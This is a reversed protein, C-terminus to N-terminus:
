NRRAYYVDYDVWARGGAPKVVVRHDGAGLGTFVRSFGFRLSGSRAHDIRGVLDGDVYVKSRGGGSARGFWIELRDGATPMVLASAPRAATCYRRGGDTRRVTWDGKKRVSDSECQDVVGVAVRVTDTDTRGDEDTVTLRATYTGPRAYAARVTRGTADRASGGNGFSWSYRLDSSSTEDDSSGQGSFTVQRGTRTRTPTASARATPAAGSATVTVQVTDTDDLGQPDTVTLEADYTGPETYTHKPAAASSDKTGDGDFDWSYDLDGPDEDDTSGTADFQVSQGTTAATPTAKADATPATNAPPAPLDGYGYDFAGCGAGMDFTVDGTLDGDSTSPGVGTGSLSTVDFTLCGFRFRWPNTVSPYRSDVESNSPDTYNDTHGEGSDTFRSDGSAATWAADDLDPQDSGPEPQSDLPTQAPPNDTGVNGYGHNEDTYAVYLGPQFGIPDRDNEGKGQEDFGSRDRLELYYAHDLPALSSADVYRWGQTCQKAVAARDQCGGNFVRFDEPGGEGEFDTALLVRKSDDPLTATVELDDIFWGPRALGPDTSYSFRLAGAGDEAGVLDSVDFSDALFEAAPSAGTLRDVQLEPQTKRYSASSGTIGNDYKDLCSSQNPNQAKSTTTPNGERTSAHSTYSSGGDTTTLVFGYDFDWEIDFRSKMTLEITTGEPLSKLGPVLLDFNRGGGPPCGFDNGSGSWWAHSKSAGEGTEFDAETILRRGPLKAVYMESNQVRAGGPTETLTYPDGDPERWRITDTDEKSDRMGTVTRDGDLVEPVVWGLEQRSFSDMNHSKDTAMLNWDGYTERDGLSYFDPLGLSHGYEHSIVSAKDIATEPNVNYPGVRVFVKLEDGKDTTTMETRGSDTYWLPRGELDKLQDDTPFGALGTAPDTYSGELSSSHPWVNDYSEPGYPCGATGLQSAGNGGCGVFVVMFFDVVGDKDTDFDSYDIEPDAIAAADWVMKAAPGCASDIDMLTGVGTVSGAVASGAKDDGYYDTTGPLQYFGDKIREPYLPTGAADSGATFGRCTGAPELETFDFGPGYTFDKTAIGASPVDGQPFLQGLSMEQFLNFTSGPVTPSNVKAALGEGSHDDQHKRDLYDVPVMPFPRDGYRATDYGGAPPIVKPGHSTADTDQGGTSLRATSSLDKWVLTPDEVLTDAEWTLVLTSVGAGSDSAAPVSPITWTVQTPTVPHTGPGTAGTLTTGDPADVTVTVAGSPSPEYNRVILRSPYQQGPKVWGVSSVFSNELVLGSPPAVLTVSGAGADDAAWAGTSPDDYTADVARLGLGTRFDTEPGPAVDDTATGPVTASFTGDSGATVPMSHLVDGGASLVKLTFSGPVGTFTTGSLNSDIDVESLTGEVTFAQGPATDAVPDVDAVLTNLFFRSSGAPTAGDYVEVRVPGAPWTGDPELPLDADTGTHSVTPSAFATTSDGSFLKATLEGEPASSLTFQLAGCDSRTFYPADSVNLTPTGACAGLPDKYFLFDSASASAPQEALRPQAASPRGPLALASPATLGLGLVLALLVILVRTHPTRNM